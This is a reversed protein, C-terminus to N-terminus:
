RDPIASANSSSPHHNYFPPSFRHTVAAKQSVAHNCKRIDREPKLALTWVKSNGQGTSCVQVLSSSEKHKGHFLQLRVL